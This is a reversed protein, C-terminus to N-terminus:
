MADGEATDDADGGMLLKLRARAAAWERKVTATSIELVDAIQEVTLGSFFRLEVIEAQRPFQKRLAELADNLECIEVNDRQQLTELMSDISSREHSGPRKYANRRRAHDVLIERMAKNAAGFLYRRGDAKQLLGSNLIRIIAENVVATPQLTHDCAEKRMMMDATARMVTQMRGFLKAEANEDGAQIQGLLLTYETSGFSEIESNDQLTFSREKWLRRQDCRITKEICPSAPAIFATLYWDHM